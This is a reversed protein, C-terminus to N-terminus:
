QLWFSHLATILRTNVQCFLANLTIFRSSNQPSKKRIMVIWKHHVHKLLNFYINIIIKISM